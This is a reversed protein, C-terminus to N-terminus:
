YSLRQPGDWPAMSHKNSYSAGGLELQYGWDSHASHGIARSM